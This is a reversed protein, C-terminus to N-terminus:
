HSTNNNNNRHPSVVDRHFQPSKHTRQGDGLHYMLSYPAATSHYQCPFVSPSKLFVQGLAVKDVVFGVPSVQASARGASTFLWRNVVQAIARGRQSTYNHSHNGFFNTINVLAWWQDRDQALRIL